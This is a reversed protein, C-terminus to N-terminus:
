RAQRHCSHAKWSTILLLFFFTAASTWCAGIVGYVPVLWLNLFVSLLAASITSAAMMGTRGYFLLFNSAIRSGALTLFSFILWPGYTLVSQYDASLFHPAITLFGVAFAISFLVLGLAYIANLNLLNSALGRGASLQRFLIPVFAQNVSNSFINSAQAIQFALSYVGAQAVGWTNAIIWRDLMSMVWGALQHPVLPLSYRLADCLILPKSPRGLLGKYKLISIGWICTVGPAIIQALVATEWSKSGSLFFSGVSTLIIFVQITAIFIYINLEDLTQLILLVLQSISQMAAICVAVLVWHRPLNLHFIWGYPVLWLVLILVIAITPVALVVSSVLLKFDNKSLKFFAQQVSASLGLGCLMSLAIFLVTFMSLHGFDEPPLVTAFSLIAIFQVGAIATNALGYVMSGRFLDNLNSSSDRKILIFRHMTEHLGKLM